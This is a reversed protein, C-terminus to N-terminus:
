AAIAKVVNLWDVDFLRDFRGVFFEPRPEVAVEALPVVPFADLGGVTCGGALASAKFAILSAPTGPADLGAGLRAAVVGEDVSGRRSGPWTKRSQSPQGSITTM